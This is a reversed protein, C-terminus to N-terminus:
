MLLVAPEPIPNREGATPMGCGLEAPSVPWCDWCECDLAPCHPSSGPLWQWAESTPLGKRLLERTGATAESPWRCGAWREILFLGTCKATWEL